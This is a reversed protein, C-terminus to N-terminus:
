WGGRKQQPLLDALSKMLLNGHNIITRLIREGSAPKKTRLYPGMIELEKKDLRELALPKGIIVQVDPRQGKLLRQVAGKVDCSYGVPGPTQINVAVPLLMADAIHALYAAGLGTRKPLVWEADPINSLPEHASIIIDTGDKLAKAMDVFNQPNFSFKLRKETKDFKADIEFFNAKGAMQIFVAFRPDKLNESQLSIGISRNPRFQKLKSHLCSYVTHIDLDSFHSIVIVLPKEPIQALNEAGFLEPKNFVLIRGLNM